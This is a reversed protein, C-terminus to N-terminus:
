STSLVAIVSGQPKEHIRAFGLWLKGSKCLEFAEAEPMLELNRYDPLAGIEHLGSASIHAISFDNGCPKYARQYGQFLLAMVAIVPLAAALSPLFTQFWPATSDTKQQPDNVTSNQGKRVAKGIDNRDASRMTRGSM